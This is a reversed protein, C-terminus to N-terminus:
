TFNPWCKTFVWKAWSLSESVSVSVCICVPIFAVAASLSDVQVSGSGCLRFLGSFVSYEEVLRLCSISFCAFVSGATSVPLPEPSPSLNLTHIPQPFMTVSTVGVSKKKSTASVFTFVICTLLVRRGSISFYMLKKLWSSILDSGNNSLTVM